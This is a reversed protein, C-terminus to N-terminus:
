VLVKEEGVDEVAESPDEVVHEDREISVYNMLVGYTRKYAVQRMNNESTM